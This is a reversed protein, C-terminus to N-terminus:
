RWAHLERKMNRLESLLETALAKAEQSRTQSSRRSPPSFDDTGSNRDGRFSDEESYKSSRRGRKGKRLASLEKETEALRQQLQEVLVSNGNTHNTETDIQAIDLYSVEGWPDSHTGIVRQVASDGSAMFDDYLTRMGALRVLFSRWSWLALLQARAGEIMGDSYLDIEGDAGTNVGTLYTAISAVSKKMKKNQVVRKFVRKMKATAPEKKWLRVCLMPESGEFGMIDSAADLRLVLQDNARLEHCIDNAEQVLPLAQAFSTLFNQAADEGIRDAVSEVFLKAQIFEESSNDIIESLHEELLADQEEQAAGIKNKNKQASPVVLKFIHTHGVMFRDRTELTVPLNGIARGNRCLRGFKGSADAIPKVHVRTHNFNILQCMEGHIGLGKLQITCNPNSGVTVVENIPIFYVLCGSLSPDDAVNVLYPTNPNMNMASALGKGSLGMDQLAQQRMVDMKRSAEIEDKFNRGYQGVLEQLMQLQEQTESDLPAPRGPGGTGPGAGPVGGAEGNAEANPDPGGAAGGFAGAKLAAIEAKLQAIINADSMQNVVAQTQVQKVSNAFRLTSMTEDFNSRAPSVAAIMVTKSNGILSEQLLYTLTSNRFPIFDDHKKKKKDEESKSFAKALAHIVLALCTLSQNIQAGEKLRDGTANTKKQRESGALDVLNIKSRLLSDPKEPDAGKIQAVLVSFICHSRSSRDNMSTAAVSRAKMGFEMLEMIDEASASACESLGPVYIGFKPHQRVELQKKKEGAEEPNLLDRLKDNYIELYSAKVQFNWDAEEKKRATLMIFVQNCMRPLLGADVNMDKGGIVSWTKGAGTQGYAFLTDNYGALANELLEMGLESMLTNQDAFGNQEDKKSHSWYCRDYGFRLPNNDEDLVELVAKEPMRIICKEGQERDIFPRCRICVKINNSEEAGGGGQSARGM